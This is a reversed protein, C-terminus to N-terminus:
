RVLRGPPRAKVNGNGSGTGPSEFDHDFDFMLQLGKHQGPGSYVDYIVGWALRKVPM